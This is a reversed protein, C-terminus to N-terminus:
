TKENGNLYGKYGSELDTFHLSAFHQLRLAIIIWQYASLM